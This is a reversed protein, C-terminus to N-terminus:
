KFGALVDKFAEFDEYTKYQEPDGMGPLVKLGTKSDIRDSMFIDLLQANPFMGCAIARTGSRSVDLCGTMVFDRADEISVGHRTFFNIYSKDSVFAPMSCGQRIAKLAKNIIHSPTSDAIRLTLTHHPTPCAMLADLLLETLRNCADSGDPKVGGITANHWKAM